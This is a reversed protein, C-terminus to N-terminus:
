TLRLADVQEQISRALKLLSDLAASFPYNDSYRHRIESKASSLCAPLDRFLATWPLSYWQSLGRLAASTDTM